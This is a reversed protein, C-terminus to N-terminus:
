CCWVPVDGRGTVLELLPAGSSAISLRGQHAADDAAPWGSAIWAGSVDHVARSSLRSGRLLFFWELLVDAQTVPRLVCGPTLGRLQNDHSGSTPDTMM